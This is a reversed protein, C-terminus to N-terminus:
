EPQQESPSYDVGTIGPPLMAFIATRENTSAAIKRYAIRFYRTNSLISKKDAIDAIPVCYRNREERAPDTYQHFTRGEHLILYGREILTATIEPSRPDAGFEVLDATPVFLPSDDSSNLERGLRVGLEGCSQDFSEGNAFCM